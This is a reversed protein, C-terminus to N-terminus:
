PGGGGVLGHGGAKPAFLGRLTLERPKREARQRCVGRGGRWAQDGELLLFHPTDGGPGQVALKRNSKSLRKKWIKWKVWNEMKGVEGLKGM